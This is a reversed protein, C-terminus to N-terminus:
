FGNVSKPINIAPKNVAVALMVSNSDARDINPSRAFRLEPSVINPLIGTFIALLSAAVAGGAFWYKRQRHRDLSEFVRNPLKQQQHKVLLHM